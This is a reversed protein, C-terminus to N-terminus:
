RKHDQDHPSWILSADAMVATADRAVGKPKDRGNSPTGRAASLFREKSYSPNTGKLERAFHGAVQDRIDDPLDAIIAALKVYHRHQFTM